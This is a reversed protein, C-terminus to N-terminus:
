QRPLAVVLDKLRNVADLLERKKSDIETATVQRTRQGKRTSRELHWNDGIEPFSSNPDPAPFLQSHALWNRFENAQRLRTAVEKHTASDGLTQFLDIRSQLGTGTEVLRFFAETEENAVGLRHLFWTSLLRDALVMLDLYSGREVQVKDAHEKNM